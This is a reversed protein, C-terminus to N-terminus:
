KVFDSLLLMTNKPRGAVVKITGDSVSRYMIFPVSPIKLEAALATNADAKKLNEDSPADGGDFATKDGSSSKEWMELGAATDALMKGAAIRNNDVKGFPIIRVQLTGGDVASKVDNWFLHCQDCTPNVFAYLYPADNAGASIYAAAEVKAYAQEVKPANTKGIDDAKVTATQDNGQARARFAQAIEFNVQEGKDNFLFGPAVLGGEPTTYAFQVGGQADHIAWVDLGLHHGLFDVKGGAAEFIALGGHRKPETAPANAAAAKQAAKLLPQDVTPMPSQNQAFALGAFSVSLLATLVLPRKLMATLLSAM